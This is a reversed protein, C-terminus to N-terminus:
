EVKRTKNIVLKGQPTVRNVVAKLGIIDDLVAVGKAKNEMSLADWDPTNAITFALRELFTDGVLGTTPYMLCVQEAKQWVDISVEAREAMRKRVADADRPLEIIEAEIVVEDIEDVSSDAPGAPAVGDVVAELRDLNEAPSPLALNDTTGIARVMAGGELLQETTIDLGLRPVVFQNAKGSADKGHRMEVALTAKIPMGREQLGFILQEMAGLEHAANWGKTELRWVGGLRISPIIVNLRTVPRCQMKGEKQCLCDVLAAEPKGPVVVTATVGTCRRKLGSGAWMEYYVSLSGPPLFVSIEKAESKVQWQRRIRARDEVWPTVQGGYQAALQEIATRDPSTFRFTDIGRMANGYKEGIRIRGHEPMRSGLEDTPKIERM